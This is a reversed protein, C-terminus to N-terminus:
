STSSTPPTLEIEEDATLLGLDTYVTADRTTTAPPSTCTAGSTKARAVSSSRLQLPDKLGGATSSTSAPTNSGNRGSSTTRKTSGPKSNSSPTVQKGRESAEILAEPIPSRQGTRYLCMKIAQVDPDRAAAWIFDTVTSYSTYPHHLLIDQRKIRDFVASTAGVGRLVAPVTARLPKDKLDPRDLKYLEMLDPMNLPGEVVYVDDAELGLSDSLYRVMEPPMTPAVELRVASGFRRKHLTQQMM